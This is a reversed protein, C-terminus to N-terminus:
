HHVNMSICSMNTINKRFFKKFNISEICKCGYFLKSFSKIESGIIIKIKRIKDKKRKTKIKIEEKNDNFYIHYYKEDEDINIFKGHGNM